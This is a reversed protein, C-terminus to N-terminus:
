RLLLPNMPEKDRAVANVLWVENCGGGFWTFAATCCFSTASDTEIPFQGELLRLELSEAMVIARTHRWELREYFVGECAHGQANHVHLLKM